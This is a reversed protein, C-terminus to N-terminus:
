FVLLLNIDHNRGVEGVLARWVIALLQEGNGKGRERERM